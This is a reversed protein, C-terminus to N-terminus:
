VKVIAADIYEDESDKIDTKIADYFDKGEEEGEEEKEHAKKNKMFMIEGNLLQISPM